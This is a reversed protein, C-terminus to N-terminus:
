LSANDLPLFCIDGDYLSAHALQLSARNLKDFGTARTRVNVPFFTFSRSCCGL